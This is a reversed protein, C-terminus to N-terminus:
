VLCCFSLGFFLKINLIKKTCIEDKKIIKDKSKFFFPIFILIMKGLSISYADIIHNVQDTPFIKHIFHIAVQIIAFLFPWINKRDIKGLKFICGKM